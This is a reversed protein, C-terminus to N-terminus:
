VMESGDKHRLKKTKKKKIKPPTSFDVCECSITSLICGLMEKYYELIKKHEFKFGLVTFKRPLNLPKSQSELSYKHQFDIIFLAFNSFNSM